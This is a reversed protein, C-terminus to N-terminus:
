LYVTEHLPWPLGRFQEEFKNETKENDRITMSIVDFLNDDNHGFTISDRFQSLLIEQKHISDAITDDDSSIQLKNYNVGIGRDKNLVEITQRIASFIKAASIYKDEILKRLESWSRNFSARQLFLDHESESLQRVFNIFELQPLQNIFLGFATRAWFIIGTVITNYDFEAMAIYPRRFHLNPKKYRYIKLLSYVYDDLLRPESFENIDKIFAQFLFSGDKTRKLEAEEISSSSDFEIGNYSSIFFVFKDQKQISIQRRSEMQIMKEQPQFHKKNIAWYHM